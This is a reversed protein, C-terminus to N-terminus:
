RRAQGILWATALIVLAAVAGALAIWMGPTM